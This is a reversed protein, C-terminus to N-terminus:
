HYHILVWHDYRVGGSQRLLHVFSIVEGDVEEVLQPIDSDPHDLQLNNAALIHNVARAAIQYSSLQFSITNDPRAM